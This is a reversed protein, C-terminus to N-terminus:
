IDIIAKYGREQRIESKKGDRQKSCLKASKKSSKEKKVRWEVILKIKTSILAPEFELCDDFQNWGM